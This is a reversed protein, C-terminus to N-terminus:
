CAACKPFPYVNAVPKHNKVQVKGSRIMWTLTKFNVHGRRFHLHLLEKATESMNENTTTAVNVTGLLTTAQKSSNKSTCAKVTPLDTRPHCPAEIVHVPMVDFGGLGPICPKILIKETVSPDNINCPQHRIGHNCDTTKIGQPSLLCVGSGLSPVFCAQVRLPIKTGDEGVVTLECVEKGGISCGETIGDVVSGSSPHLEVFDSKHPASTRCADSDVV